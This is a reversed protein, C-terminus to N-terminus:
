RSEAAPGAARRRFLALAEAHLQPAAALVGFIEADPTNFAIPAGHADTVVAGAETAILAAAAIDWEHGWGTTTVLDAENGAVMAIRLAISNPKTVRVIGEPLWKAAADTPLRAGDLTAHRSAILRRGNCTAGSGAVAAWSEGRAPAVLVGLRPQGDEILAVSIAWGPRGRVYDRTGDIPDVVWSRSQNLRDRDDATEESLWGAAPDISRLRERLLVDVALDIESVPNGPSKDWRRFEGQWSAM